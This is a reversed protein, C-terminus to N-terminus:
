NTSQDNLLIAARLKASRARLNQLVEKRSARIPKKTLIKLFEGRSGERFYNKVLRDELSHFSIIAARGGPKLITKLSRLATELNELERNLYIRLAQFTRTAPHIRGREYFKPVAGAIVEALLKTDKIRERNQIIAAAINKAFREEGFKRIVEELEGADTEKLFEMLTQSQPHYIMNLPGGKQFSFGRTEDALQVSSLGLDLLLGDAKPFKIRKMLSPLDAYNGNIVKVNPYPQLDSKLKKVVEPDWDVLLLKGEAGILDLIMKGHGGGGATGDIVIDGSKLDLIEKVENLLVPKHM